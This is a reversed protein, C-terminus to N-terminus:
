KLTLRLPTKGMLKAYQEVCDRCKKYIDKYNLKELMGDKLSKAVIHDAMKLSDLAFGDLIDRLNPFKQGIFDLAFLSNNEMKSIIMYYKEANCSGQSKAYDVFEKITDTELRREIKGAERKELWERNQKQSLLKILFRRQRFFERTLTRKFSRAMDHNRLLTCLYTAQEENLLFDDIPRGGKKSTPKHMEFAIVGWEEFETKYKNIINKLDRHEVGFGKSLDSTRVLLSENKIIVLPSPM